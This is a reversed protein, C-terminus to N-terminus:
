NKIDKKIIEDLVRQSGSEGGFSLSICGSKEILQLLDEDIKKFNDFRCFSSWKIEWQRSVIEECIEKVRPVSIFFEDEWTFSINKVGFKKM